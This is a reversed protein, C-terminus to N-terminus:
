RTKKRLNHLQDRLIRTEDRLREVEAILELLVPAPFINMKENRAISARLAETDLPTTM